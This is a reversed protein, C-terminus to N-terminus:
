GTSVMKSKRRAILGGALSGFGLLGLLPLPSATQPLKQSSNQDIDSYHRVGQNANQDASTSSQGTNGAANGAASNQATPQETGTGVSNAPTQNTVPPTTVGPAASGTTSSSQGSVAGSTEPTAANAGSQMSNSSQNATEPTSSPPQTSTTSQTTSNTTSTSTESNSINQNASSNQASTSSSSPQNSCSASVKDISVIEVTGDSTQTGHIRVEQGQHSSLQDDIGSLTLNKGDDSTLSWNGPSGNLCGKFAQPANEDTTPLGPTSMAAGAPSRQSQPTGRDGTGGQMPVPSSQTQAHAIGLGFALVLGILLQKKM